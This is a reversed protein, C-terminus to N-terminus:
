RVDLPLDGLCPAAEKVLSSIARPSSPDSMRPLNLAQSDRRVQLETVDSFSRMTSEAGTSAGWTSTGAQGMKHTM